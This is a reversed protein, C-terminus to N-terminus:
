KRYFGNIAHMWWGIWHKFMNELCTIESVIDPNEVTPKTTSEPIEIEIDLDPLEIEIDVGIDVDPIYDDFVGDPIDIDIDNSIDPIEPMDPVDLEPTVAYVPVTMSAILMVALLFTIIKKM